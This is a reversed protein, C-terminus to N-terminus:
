WHQDRSGHYTHILKIDGYMKRADKMIGLVIYNYHYYTQILEIDYVYMKGDDQWWCVRDQLLTERGELQEALHGQLWLHVLEEANNM